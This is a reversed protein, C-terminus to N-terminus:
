IYSSQPYPKDSSAQTHPLKYSFVIELRVTASSLTERLCCLLTVIVFSRVVTHTAKHHSMSPSPPTLNQRQDHNPPSLLLSHPAIQLRPQTYASYLNSKFRAIGLDDPTSSLIGYATELLPVQIGSALRCTDWTTRCKDGCMIPTASSPERIQRVTLWYLHISEM